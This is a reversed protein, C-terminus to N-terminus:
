LQVDHLSQAVPPVQDAQALHGRVELHETFVPQQPLFQALVVECVSLYSPLHLSGETRPTGRGGLFLRQGAHERVQSDRPDSPQAALQNYLSAHPHSHLHNIYLTKCAVAIIRSIPAQPILWVSFKLGLGPPFLQMVQLQEKGWTHLSFTCALELLWGSTRPVSVRASDKHIHDMLQVRKGKPALFGRQATRHTVPHYTSLLGAAAWKTGTYVDRAAQHDDPTM